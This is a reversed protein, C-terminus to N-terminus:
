LNNTNDRQRQQARIKSCRECVCEFDDDDDDDFEGDIIPATDYDWEYREPDVFYNPQPGYYPWPSTDWETMFQFYSSPNNPM